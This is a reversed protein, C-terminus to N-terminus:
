NQEKLTIDKLGITEPEPKDLSSTILDSYNVLLDPELQTWQEQNLIWLSLEPSMDEELLKMSIFMLEKWNYILTEMIPELPTSETNMLFSKGFSPVSKTVV